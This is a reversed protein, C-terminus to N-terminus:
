SRGTRCAPIGIRLVECLLQALGRFLEIQDDDVAPGHQRVFVHPRKGLDDVVDHENHTRTTGFAIGDQGRDVCQADVGAFYAASNQAGGIIDRLGIIVACSAVSTGRWVAAM